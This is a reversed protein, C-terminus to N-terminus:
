ESGGAKEDSGITLSQRLVVDQNLKFVAAEVKANLLDTITYGLSLLQEMVYQKRKVGTPDTGKLTQEAADVLQSIVGDLITEEQGTTRRALWAKIYRVLYLGALSLLGFIVKVVIDIIQQEM